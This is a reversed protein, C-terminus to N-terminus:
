TAREEPERSIVELALALAEFLTTNRPESDWLKRPKPVRPQLEPFRNALAEAEEFKNAYRKPAQVAIDFLPEVEAVRAIAEIAARVADGKRWRDTIKEYVVVNPRMRDIWENAFRAAQEASSAAKRSLSWGYLKKDVLFVYGVRGTAVAIALVRNAEM